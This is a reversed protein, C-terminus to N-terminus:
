ESSNLYRKRATRPSVGNDDGGRVSNLWTEIRRLRRAEGYGQLGKKKIM